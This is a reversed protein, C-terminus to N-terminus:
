LLHLKRGTFTLILYYVVSEKALFTNRRQNIFLHTDLMLARIRGLYVRLLLFVNKLAVKEAMFGVNFVTSDLKRCLPSLGAILRLWPVARNRM